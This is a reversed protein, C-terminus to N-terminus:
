ESKKIGLEVEINPQIKNIQETQNILSQYKDTKYDNWFIIKIICIIFIQIKPIINSMIFHTIGLGIDQWSGHDKIRLYFILNMIECNSILVLFSDILSCNEKINIEMFAANVLLGPILTKVMILIQSIFKIKFKKSIFKNIASSDFDMITLVNGTSYFSTYIMFIYILINILNFNFLNEKDVKNKLEMKMWLQLYIYYFLLFIGEYSCTLLMYYPFIYIFLKFLTNNEKEIDNLSIPFIFVILSIWVSISFKESRLSLIKNQDLIDIIIASIFYVFRLIFRWNKINIQHIYSM